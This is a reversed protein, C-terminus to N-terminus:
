RDGYVATELEALGQLLRATPRLLIDAKLVLVRKRKVATISEFRPWRKAMAEFPAPDGGMALVLIVEPDRRVVDELSSRPYHVHSDSYLGRAGIAELADNLFTGGGVAILPEDGIQLLVRKTLGRKRARERIHRLGESFREAMREGENPQGLARGVLRMSAAVDALSATAVTVVPLGLERLRLVQDKANGDLTALVLDPKLTVVKEINFRAYPGISPTSALAPPYDTYESVGVIRSSDSACFEAALEGLSPALTVIRIPRGVLKVQAQTADKIERIQRVESGQGASAPVALACAALSVFLLKLSLKKAARCFRM